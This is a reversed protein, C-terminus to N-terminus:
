TMNSHDVRDAILGASAIIGAVSCMLFYIFLGKLGASTIIGAVSCMLFYILYREGDLLGNGM